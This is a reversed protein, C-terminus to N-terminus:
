VFIEDYPVVAVVLQIINTVVASITQSISEGLDENVEAAHENLFVNTQDGIFSSFQLKFLFINQKFYFM